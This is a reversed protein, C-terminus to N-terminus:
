AEKSVLFSTGLFAAFMLLAALAELVVAALWATLYSQSWSTDFLHAILPCANSKTVKRLRMNSQNMHPQIVVMKRDNQDAQFSNQAEYKVSDHTTIHSGNNRENQDAQFNSTVFNSSLLVFHFM